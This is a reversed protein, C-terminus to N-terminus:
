AVNEFPFILEVKLGDGLKNYLNMEYGDQGYINELRDHINQIGVGGFSFANKTYVGADLAGIGLGDDTVSVVLNDGKKAAAVTIVGGRESLSIAYKIANEALPQLILSPVRACLVAEDIHYNITLRDSFRTKEISLYLDLAEIEEQLKVAEKREDKLSYRLFSSLKDIMERAKTAEKVAVLASVANLTNFLFHPNLQYRLMEMRSESALKEAYYRKVKEARAHEVQLIRRDREGAALRYYLINYYLATWCLFIFFGSFYWGGFDAWQEEGASTMLIFSQMRIITALFSVLMVVLISGLVLTPMSRKWLGRYIWHMPFTICVGVISQLVAHLIYPLEASGYWLTLSFFTIVAHAAWFILQMLWLSIVVPQVATHRAVIKNVNRKM